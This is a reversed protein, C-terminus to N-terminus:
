FLRATVQAVLYRHTLMKNSNDDSVELWGMWYKGLTFLKTAVASQLPSSPFCPPLTIFWCKHFWINGLEWRGNCDCLATCKFTIKLKQHSVCCFWDQWIHSIQRQKCFWCVLNVYFQKASFQRQKLCVSTMEVSEVWPIIMIKWLLYSSSQYCNVELM